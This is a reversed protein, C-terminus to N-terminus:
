YGNQKNIARQLAVVLTSDGKDLKGDVPTGYYRQLAAITNTPGVAHDVNSDIGRGDIVLPKGNLGVVGKKRLFTQVARTLMSPDSFKGDEPTGNIHQWERITNEGLQGDVSLRPRRNLAKPIASNAQQSPAKPAAGTPRGKFHNYWRLAEEQIQKWMKAVYPGACATASWHSHMFFNSASPAAGIVKAFLWGALRAAGKWTEEAVEWAPGLTKNAMEISITRMNGITNGVAWAYWPVAAYQCPKGAGDIDFHASAPRKKWVALVGEHSLRAANHHLTVSDKRYSRTTVHGTAVLEDILNKMPLDYAIAATM